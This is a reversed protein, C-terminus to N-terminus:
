TYTGGTSKNFKKSSVTDHIPKQMWWVMSRQWALIIYTLASRKHLELAMPIQIKRRKIFSYRWDSHTLAESPNILSKSSLTDHIPKQMWCFHNRQQPPMIYTLASRKHHELAKPIQIKRRKIYSYRLDSHTLAEGLNTLSKSSLSDHIPKQMWCVTSRQRAPMIYTLASRKYLELAFPIQIKRRKAYFYRLDSKSKSVNGRKMHDRMSLRMLIWLLIITM